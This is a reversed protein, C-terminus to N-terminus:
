AIACDPNWWSKLKAKGDLNTRGKSLCNEVSNHMAKSLQSNLKNVYELAESKSINTDILVPM